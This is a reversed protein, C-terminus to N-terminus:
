PSILELFREDTVLQFSLNASCVMGISAHAEGQAKVRGRENIEIIEVGSTIVDGLLVPAHFNSELGTFLPIMGEREVLVGISALQALHEATKVGPLVSRGNPFHGTYQTALPTWIGEVREDPVLRTIRDVYLMPPRHPLISMPEPLKSIAM